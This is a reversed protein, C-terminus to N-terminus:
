EYNKEEERLDTLLRRPEVVVGKDEPTPFLAILRQDRELGPLWKTLFDDLSIARAETGAWDGDACALAFREHPWFPAVHNGQDDAGLVWGEENALSWVSEQDATRKVFYPYRKARPLRIVSKFEADNIRLNM